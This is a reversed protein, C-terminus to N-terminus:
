VVMDLLFLCDDIYLVNICLVTLTSFYFTTPPLNYPSFPPFDNISSAVITFHKLNEFFIMIHVFMDTNFTELSM